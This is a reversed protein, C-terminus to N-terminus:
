GAASASTPKRDHRYVLHQGPSLAQQVRWAKHLAALDEATPPASQLVTLLGQPGCAEREIDEPLAAEADRRDFYNLWGVVETPTHTLGELADRFGTDVVKLCEPQWCEVTVAVLQKVWHLQSFEPAGESPLVMVLTGLGGPGTGGRIRLSLTQPGTKAGSTNLNLRFGALATGHLGMTGDALVGTNWEAPSENDWGFRQVFSAVNSLDQALPELEQPSSGTLYMAGKLMPHLDRLVALYAMAEQAFQGLNLPQDARGATMYMYNNRM